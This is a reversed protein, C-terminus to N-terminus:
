ELLTIREMVEEYNENNLETYLLDFYKELEEWNLKSFDFSCLRSRIEETFRYKLIRDRAFIAYPPVEGAVVSGAGIVAGQGITTGSLVIVRSGIWVDDGITIPGKSIAEAIKNKTIRNKFPFSSLNKYNHEGGLFFHVDDAISCYRGIYLGENEQKYYHVNLTGYTHDGVSVVKVPFVNGAKTGNGLNMKRWTEQFKLLRIHDHWEKLLKKLVM